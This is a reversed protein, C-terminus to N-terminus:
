FSLEWKRRDEDYGTVVYIRFGNSSYKVERETIYHLNTVWDSIVIRSYGGNDWKILGIISNENYIFSNAAENFEKGSFFVVDVSYLNSWANHIYGGNEVVIPSNGMSTVTNGLVVSPRVVSQYRVQCPILVSAFVGGVGSNFFLLLFIVVLKKYDKTLSIKM